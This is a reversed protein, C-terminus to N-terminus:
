VINLVGGNNWVDGTSLGSSSTPLQTVKLAGNITLKQSAAGASSFKGYILANTRGGAENTRDYVDIIMTDNATEYLGAYAGVFVGRNGNYNQGTSYGIVTNYSATTSAFMSSMGIAVNFDGTCIRGTNAGIYVTQTGVGTNSGTNTGICVRYGGSGIAGASTGICVDNGGTGGARNGIYTGNSNVTIDGGSNSGIAVINQGTTIEHGAQHGICVINTGTTIAKGAENGYLNISYSGSQLSIGANKGICNSSALNAGVTNTGSTIVISDNYGSTRGTMLYLIGDAQLKMRLVDSSNYNVQIDDTSLSKLKLTQPSLLQAVSGTDEWLGASGEESYVIGTDIDIYLSKYNSPHTGISKAYDLNLATYIYATNTHSEAFKLSASGLNITGTANPLINASVELRDSQIEAYNYIDTALALKYYIDTDTTDAAFVFHTVDASTLQIYYGGSPLELTNFRIDNESNNYLIVNDIQRLITGQDDNSNFIKVTYLKTAGFQTGYGYSAEDLTKIRLSNFEIDGAAAFSWGIADENDIEGTDDTQESVSAAYSSSSIKQIRDQYQSAENLQTGLVWNGASSLVYTANIDFTEDEVLVVDGSSFDGKAAEMEAISSFIEKAGSKFATVENQLAKTKTAIIEFTEEVDTTDEMSINLIAGINMGAIKLTNAKDPETLSIFSDILAKFQAENPKDGNEFYTYLTSRNAM